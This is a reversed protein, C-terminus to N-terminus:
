APLDLREAHTAMAAHGPWVFLKSLLPSRALKWALAHERAGKGILLVTLALTM